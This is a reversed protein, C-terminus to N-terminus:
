EPLDVATRETTAGDRVAIQLSPFKIKLELAAKQAGDLTAFHQKFRGDVVMSFGSKPYANAHLPKAALPKDLTAAVAEKVPEKM